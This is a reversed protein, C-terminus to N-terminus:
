ADIRGVSKYRVMGARRRQRLPMQNIFQLLGLRLDLTLMFTTALTLSTSLRCHLELLFFALPTLPVLNPFIRIYHTHLPDSHPHQTPVRVAMLTCTLASLRLLLLIVMMMLLLVVLLSGRAPPRRRIHAVRRGSSCVTGPSPLTPGLGKGKESLDTKNEGKMSKGFTPLPYSQMGHNYSPTHAGAALFALHHIITPIATSILLIVRSRIHTVIKGFHLLCPSSKILASCSCRLATSYIVSLSRLAREGNYTQLLKPARQAQM